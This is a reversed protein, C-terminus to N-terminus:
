RKTPEPEKAQTKLLDEIALELLGAHTINLTYTINSYRIVGAPDIVYLGPMIGSGWLTRLAGPGGAQDPDWWFKMSRCDVKAADRLAQRDFGSLIGLFAVPKDHLKRAILESNMIMGSIPPLQAIRGNPLTVSRGSDNTKSDVFLVVTKGRYDALKMVNGDLDPGETEPAPSGVSLRQMADLLTKASEGLMLPRGPTQRTEYSEISPFEVVLRQFLTAAEQELRKPDARLIREYGDKDTLLYKAVNAGDAHAGLQVFRAWESQTKLILGLLWCANARIDPYPNRALANRLLNVAAESSWRTLYRPGILMRLRDSKAHNRALIETAKEFEPRSATGNTLFVLAEEAANTGPHREALALIRGTAAVYKAQQKQITAQLEQLRNADRLNALEKSLDSAGSLENVLAHLQDELTSDKAQRAEPPDAPSTTKTAPDQEGGNALQNGHESHWPPGAYSVVAVGTSGLALMVVMAAIKLKSLIMTRLGGQVLAAVPGAVLGALAIKGVGIRMAAQLTAETLTAPVMASSSHEFTLLSTVVSTPALGRRILRGKLRERGRSQRSKVTGIPWGLQQAAEDHSLGELDCLVLVKRYREPLRGVEEHLVADQDDAVERDPSRNIMRISRRELARRRAAATRARAAIRLAVAHLWPGLSDRIWLSRAKRVLILFTAQFADHADHEDRLTSRCVRLVMPGHRRILEHFASEAVGDRRTAFREVLERDSCGALVGADFLTGIERLGGGNPDIAL